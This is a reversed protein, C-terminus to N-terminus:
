FGASGHLHFLAPSPEVLAVFCEVPGWHRRASNTSAIERIRPESNSWHNPTLEGLLAEALAFALMMDRACTM